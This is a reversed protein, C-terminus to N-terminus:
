NGGVIVGFSTKSFINLKISSQFDLSYSMIENLEKWIGPAGALRAEGLASTFIMM